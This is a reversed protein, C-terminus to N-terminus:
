PTLLCICRISTKLHRVYKLLEWSIRDKDIKHYENWAKYANDADIEKGLRRGIRRLFEKPTELGRIPKYRNENWLVPADGKRIRFIKVLDDPINSGTGKLRILVGGFDFIIHKYVSDREL